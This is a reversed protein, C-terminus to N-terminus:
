MTSCNIQFPEEHGCRPCLELRHDFWGGNLVEPPFAARDLKPHGPLGGIRRREQGEPPAPKPPKVIDSSPPKSSTSSDKRAAALQEQLHAVTAELAKLRAEQADLRAQLRRCNPCSKRAKPRM